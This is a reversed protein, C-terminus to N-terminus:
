IQVEDSQQALPMFDRTPVAQSLLAQTVVANYTSDNTYHWYDIMAGWVAGAEWWYYPVPLLGVTATNGTQNGTYYKM